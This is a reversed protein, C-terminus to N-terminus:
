VIIQQKSQGNMMSGGIAYDYGNCCFSPISFRKLECSWFSHGNDHMMLLQTTLVKATV